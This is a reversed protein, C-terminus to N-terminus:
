NFSFQPSKVPRYFPQLSFSAIWRQRKGVKLTRPALPTPRGIEQPGASFVKTRNKHGRQNVRLEETACKSHSRTRIGASAHSGTEQSYQANEPLPM